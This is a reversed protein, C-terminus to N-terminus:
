ADVKKRKKKIKVKPKFVQRKWPTHEELRGAKAAKRAALYCARMTRGFFFAKAQYSRGLSLCWINAGGREHDAPTPKIGDQRMCEVDTYVRTFSTGPASLPELPAIAKDVDWHM